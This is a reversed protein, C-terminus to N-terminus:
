CPTKEQGTFNVNELLKEATELCLKDEIESSSRSRTLSSRRPHEKSLLCPFSSWASSTQSASSSSALIVPSASATTMTSSARVTAVFELSLYSM